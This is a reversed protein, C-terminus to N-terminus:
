VMLRPVRKPDALRRYALIGDWGCLALVRMKYNNFNRYGYARRSILEMKNHFGETIGNSKKYRWMRVIEESWDQLTRGLQQLAEFPCELLDNVHGIFERVHKLAGYQGISKLLLKAMLVEKKEYIAAVAPNRELYRELKPRSKEPVNKRHMRMLRLLGRNKRGKPDLSAWVKLFALNVLRVVHFRDTVIVANPFYKRIISRYTESLDMLVVRVNERGKLKELYSKLSEESRGLEVDFVCRKELDIFSTAYGKKRTFFHEDIGLYQPCVERRTKTERLRKVLFDTVWRAVTTSGVFRTKSLHRHSHGAQHNEFVESRFNETARYRPRVGPIRAAFTRHCRQCYLRSTVVKLIVNSQGIRTHRLKREYNEKIRCHENECHICSRSGIYRMEILTRTQVGREVSLVECGSIGIIDEATRM